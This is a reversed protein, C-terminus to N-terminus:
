EGNSGMWQKHRGLKIYIGWIIGIWKAIDLVLALPIAILFAKFSPRWWLRHVSRRIPDFVGRWILYAAFISYGISGKFWLLYYIIPLGFLYLYHQMTRVGALVCHVETVYWKSIADRWEVPFHSYNVRAQMCVERKGYVKLFKKMWVIDEGARLSSPFFGIVDFVRRSFISAPIIPHLSGCGYSLACIARAFPTRAWFYCVGFIALNKNGSVSDYLCKLWDSDPKIGADIFVIWENRAALIGANRGAGPMAGPITLVQCNAGVWTNQHWWMKILEPGEDTSGADCFIIEDPLCSQESIALLIEPLTLAENFM